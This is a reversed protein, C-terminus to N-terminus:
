ILFLTSPGNLIMPAGWFFLLHCGKDGFDIRNLFGGYQQQLKFVVQMFAFLQQHTRIGSLNIFMNLAYRFEGRMTQTLLSRSYFATAQALTVDALSIVQSLPLTGTISIAKVYHSDGISRTTVLGPIKQYATQSMILDGGNAYHEAKICRDIAQGKFYYAHQHPDPGALIGWDILGTALGIKVTFNFHGYPTAQEPMAELQHQIHWAAALAHRHMLGANKDVPFLATFADGAFNCIFGGHQYISEILPEFITVMVDALVEAGHQGHQMLTETVITFGSIDVFLSVAQFQGKFLGQTFKELIFHPVLHHM